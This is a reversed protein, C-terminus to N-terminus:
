RYNSAVSKFYRWDPDDYRQITIPYRETEQPMETLRRM